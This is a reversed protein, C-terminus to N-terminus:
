FLKRRKNIVVARIGIYWRVKLTDGVSGLLGWCVGVAGGGGRGIDMMSGISRPGVVWPGWVIKWNM